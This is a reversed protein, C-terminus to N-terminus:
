FHGQSCKCCSIPSSGSSPQLWVMSLSFLCFFLHYTKKVSFNICGKNSGKHPLIGKVYVSSRAPAALLTHTQKVCPRTTSCRCGSSVCSFVCSAMKQHNYKKLGMCCVSNVQQPQNGHHTFAM